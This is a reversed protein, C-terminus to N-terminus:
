ARKKALRLTGAATSAREQLLADVREVSSRLVLKRGRKHGPKLDTTTISLLAFVGCGKRIASESVRYHRAVERLSMYPSKEGTM